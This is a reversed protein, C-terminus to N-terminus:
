IWFGIIVLSILLIHSVALGRMRQHTKQWNLEQLEAQKNLLKLWELEGLDRKKAFTCNKSIKLANVADRARNKDGTMGNKGKM